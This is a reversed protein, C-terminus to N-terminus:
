HDHELLLQKEARAALLRVFSHSTRGNIKVRKRDAWRNSFRISAISSSVCDWRQLLTDCSLAIHVLSLRDRACYRTNCSKPLRPLLEHMVGGEGLERQQLSSGCLGGEVLTDLLQATVFAPDKALPEATNSPVSRKIITNM